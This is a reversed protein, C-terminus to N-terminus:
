SSNYYTKCTCQTLLLFYEEELIHTHRHQTLFIQFNIKTSDDEMSQLFHTFSM